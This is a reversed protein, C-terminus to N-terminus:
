LSATLIVPGTPQPHDPQSEQTITMHTYEGGPPIPWVWVGAGNEDVKFTNGPVLEGTQPNGWWCQYVSNGELPPLGTVSMAVSNQSVYLAATAASSPDSMTVPVPQIDKKLMFQQLAVQIHTLRDLRAQQQNLQNQLSGISVGLGISVALGVAASAFVAAWRWTIARRSRVAARPQATEHVAALMRQKVRLPPAGADPAALALLDAGARLSDAEARCAACTRLHDHLPTQEDPELVGLLWAPILEQATECDITM